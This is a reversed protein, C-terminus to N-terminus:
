RVFNTIVFLYKIPEYLHWGLQRLNAVAALGNVTSKKQTGLLLCLDSPDDSQQTLWHEQM